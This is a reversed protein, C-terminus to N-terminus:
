LLAKSNSGKVGRGHVQPFAKDRCLRCVVNRSRARLQLAGRRASDRLPSRVFVHLGWCSNFHNKKKKKPTLFVSFM